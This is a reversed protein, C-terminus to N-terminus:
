QRAPYTPGATCTREEDVSSNSSLVSDNGDLMMFAAELIEPGRLSDDMDSPCSRSLPSILQRVSPNVPACKSANRYALGESLLSYLSDNPQRGPATLASSLPRDQQICRMTAQVQKFSFFSLSFPHIKAPGSIILPGLRQFAEV